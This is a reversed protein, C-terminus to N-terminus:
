NSADTKGSDPCTVHANLSYVPLPMWHTPSCPQNADDWWDKTEASYEALLYVAGCTKYVTLTLVERGAEPLREEVSIWQKEDQM